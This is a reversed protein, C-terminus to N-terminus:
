TADVKQGAKVNRITCVDTRKFNHTNEKVEVKDKNDTLSHIISSNNSKINHEVFYHVHLESLNQVSTPCLHCKYIINNRVENLRIDTLNVDNSQSCMTMYYNQSLHSKTCQSISRVPNTEGEDSTSDGSGVPLM